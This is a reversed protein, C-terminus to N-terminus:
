LEPRMRQPDAALGPGALPTVARADVPAGCESCVVVPIFTKGCHQHRFVVPAGKGGDLWRDGWAVLALQVSYWDRGMETLRYEHRPPHHQYAEKRLMGLTELKRLRNTLVHRPIGLQTHFDDFRRTRLFANRLILITWRDGVVALARAISCPASDLENWKM